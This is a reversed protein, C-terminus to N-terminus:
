KSKKNNIKKFTPVKNWNAIQEEPINYKEMINVGIHNDGVRDLTHADSSLVFKVGTKVMAEIEKPTLELHKSSLEIYTNYKKACEAVKVVDVFCGAYNLHSLIDIKNTSIANIYAKTNKEIQKKNKRNKNFENPLYFGFINKLTKPKFSKHYGLVVIDLNNYTEDDLDYTGNVSTFNAELGFFLDIKDKYKEKLKDMEQKIDFFKSKKIGHCHNFAHDTIALQKLGIKIAQNVSEEMTIKGDSHNSHTHYDGFVM